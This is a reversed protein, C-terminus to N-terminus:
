GREFDGKQLELTFTDTAMLFFFFFFFLTNHKRWFHVSIFLESLLKYLSDFSDVLKNKNNKNNLYKNFLISPDM